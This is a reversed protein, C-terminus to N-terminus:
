KRRNVALLTIALFLCMFVLWLFLYDHFPGEGL